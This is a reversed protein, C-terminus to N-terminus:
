RRANRDTHPSGAPLDLNPFGRDLVEVDGWERMPVPTDPRRADHVSWGKPGLSVSVPYVTQPAPSRARLRVIRAARVAQGLMEIRPDPAAAPATLSRFRSRGRIVHGRVTDPLSEVLKARMREAADGLGVADVLPNPTALIAGLAEAEDAAVGTIRAHHTAGLEVGGRPGQHVIMPLGAHTMAEIDRLITRPTVGLERGLEVSTQRGRNQLILLIHLLRSTRM